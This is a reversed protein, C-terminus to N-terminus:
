PTLYAIKGLINLDYHYKGLDKRSLKDITLSCGSLSKENVTELSYGHASGRHISGHPSSFTCEHVIGKREPLKCSLEAGGDETYQVRHLLNKPFSDLGQRRARGANAVAIAVALILLGKLGM